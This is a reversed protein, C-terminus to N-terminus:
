QDAGAVVPPGCEGDHGASAEHRSRLSNRTKEEPNPKRERDTRRGNEEHNPVKPLNENLVRFLATATLKPPKGAKAQVTRSPSPFPSPRTPMESIYLADM